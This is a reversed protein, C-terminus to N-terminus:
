LAKHCRVIAVIKTSTKFDHQVAFRIRNFGAFENFPYLRANARTLSRRRSVPVRTSFVKLDVSEASPASTASMFRVKRYLSPSNQCKIFLVVKSCSAASSFATPSLALHSSSPSFADHGQPVTLRDGHSRWVENLQFDNFSVRPRFPSVAPVPPLGAVRDVPATTLTGSNTCIPSTIM